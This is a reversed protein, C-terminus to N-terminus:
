WRQLLKVTSKRCLRVEQCLVKIWIDNFAGIFMSWLSEQEKKALQNTGFEAKSKAAQESSLGKKLSDKKM